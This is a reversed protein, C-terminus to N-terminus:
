SSLRVPALAREGRRALRSQLWRYLGSTAIGGFLTVFLLPPLYYRPYALLLLASTGAFYALASLLVLGEAPPRAERRWGSWARALLAAGGVLALAAEFPVGHSGA